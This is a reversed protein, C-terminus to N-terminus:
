FGVPNLISPMRVRLTKEVDHRTVRDEFRGILVYHEFGCLFRGTKVQERVEKYFALYFSEDFGPNPNHRSTRSASLYHAFAKDIEVGYTSQTGHKM